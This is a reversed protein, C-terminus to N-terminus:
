EGSNGDEVKLQKFNDLRERYEDQTIYMGGIAFCSCELLAIGKIKKSAFPVQPMHPGGLNIIDGPYVPRSVEPSVMVVMFKGTDAGDATIITSSKLKKVLINDGIPTYDFEFNVISDRNQIDFGLEKETDQENTIMKSVIEAAESSYPRMIPEKKRKKGKIIFNAEKNEM